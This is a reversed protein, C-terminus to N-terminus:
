EKMTDLQRAQLIVTFVVGIFALFSFSPGLLGGVFTGFASWVEQNSSLEFWHGPAFKYYYIGTVCVATAAGIAMLQVCARALQVATPITKVRHGGGGWKAPRPRM